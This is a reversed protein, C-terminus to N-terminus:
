PARKRDGSITCMNSGVNTGVITEEDGLIRPPCTPIRVYGHLLGPTRFLNTGVNTGVNADVNADVNTGM